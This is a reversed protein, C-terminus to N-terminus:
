ADIRLNQEYEHRIGGSIDSAKVWSDDTSDYGTWRVLYERRRGRQRHDLICDVEYRDGDDSAERLQPEPVEGGRHKYPELAVVPFTPHMSYRPPLDLRFALKHNGVEELIEFPGLYKDSLKRSPRQQNLHKTSLLVLDGKKFECPKRKRNYYKAYQDSARKLLRAAGERDAKLRRVREDAKVSGYRTQQLPETPGKPSFGLLLTAPASQHASHLSTNYTWEALPLKDAWDTQEFCCYTRLYHEVQQNVRETQGDTQPHFATSLKRSVGLRQCLTTWFISTFLSGRDSVIGRPLGFRMFVHYFLLDALGEATLTQVTPIYIGYKTFRDIVVLVSDCRQFTVPSISEPLGTIFDM